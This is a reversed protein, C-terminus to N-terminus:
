RHAHWSELADVLHAATQQVTTDDCSSVAFDAMAYHPAREALMRCIKERREERSLGALLPRTNRRSVRELITDVDAELCILAGGARHIADRNREHAIAGGGLAVVSEPRQAAQCVCEYELQRFADEGDDAFIRSIPKGAREEILSDTDVFERELRQAVLQGVRSKGTAMFGTLFIPGEFM